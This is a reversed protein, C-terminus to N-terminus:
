ENVAAASSVAPDLEPRLVLTLEDRSCYWGRRSDESIHGRLDHGFKLDDFSVGFVSDSDQYVVWGVMGELASETGHYVVRQGAEIVEDDLRTLDSPFAFYGDDDPTLGDCNHGQSRIIGAPTLDPDFRVILSPEGVSRSVGVVTGGCNVVGNWVLQSARCFRVRDGVHIGKYVDESTEFGAYPIRTPRTDYEETTIHRDKLYADLEPTMEYNALDEWTSNVVDYFSHDMAYKVINHTLQITALVTAPQLSGRWLRFEITGRNCLNLAMYRGKYQYYDDVLAALENDYYTMRSNFSLEPACAWHSLQSSTRRSFKLLFDWHRYMLLVIKAIVRRQDDLTRGLQARGVHIHLGCTNADHSSFGYKIPIACLKPIDLENKMAELTHPHTVIEIGCSLSGDHKLYLTDEDYEQMIEDACGAGDRGKDVELEMGLTLPDGFEPRGWHGIGHFVACPKFGYDHVRARSSHEEYCDECYWEGDDDDYPMVDRYYIEGCSSCAEYDRDFCNECIVRGDATIYHSVTGRYYEDCDECYFIEDREELNDRCSSCVYLDPRYGGDVFTMDWDRVWEGCEDCQRYGKAELCDECYIHGDVEYVDSSDDPYWQECCECKMWGADIACDVCLFSGDWETAHEGEIICGCERCTIINENENM